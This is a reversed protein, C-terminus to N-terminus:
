LHPWPLQMGDWFDCLSGNLNSQPRTETSLELYPDTAIEYRQWAINGVGNPNGTHVMRSWYRVMSDQLDVEAPSAQGGALDPFFFRHEATHGAGRASTAANTEMAHTFLYRYVPADQAGTIARAVRRTQCNFYADTTAAEMALHPTSFAGSPYRALIPGVAGAGFVQTLAEAYTAADTVPDAANLWGRTENLNTGIIVPMPSHRGGRIAAIPQERIVLGDVNPGYWRPFLNTIGPVASVLEDVTLDRLCDAVDAVDACGITAAVRAGTRRQVDSLRPLECGTPVSSQMSAGHFLGRALPSTLLACINGGGASTGFLFVQDPDGGFEQINRQLWGLMAIQDLTGYNGSVGESRERDLAPHAMFGLVGLRPNYTVFVVNSRWAMLSGDYSGGSSGHNGGGTLWVMVPLRQDTSGAATWINLTLCDENGVVSGSRIQPCMSGVQEASRVGQWTDARQPPRFRLEGVPPKAYPIGVFTRVDDVIMGRVAGSETCVVISATVCPEQAALAGAAGVALGPRSALVLLLVTSIRQYKVAAEPKRTPGANSRKQEHAGETSMGVEREIAYRGELAANLRTIPDDPRRAQGAGVTNNGTHPGLGPQYQRRTRQSEAQPRKADALEMGKAFATVFNDLLKMAM